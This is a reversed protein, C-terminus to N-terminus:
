TREYEFDEKNTEFIGKVIFNELNNFQEVLKDFLKEVICMFKYTDYGGEQYKKYKDGLNKCNFGFIGKGELLEKTEEPIDDPDGVIVLCKKYNYERLIVDVLSKIREDIEKDTLGRRNKKSKEESFDKANVAEDIACANVKGNRKRAM